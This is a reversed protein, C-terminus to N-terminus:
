PNIPLWIEVIGSGSGANFREDYREFDPADAHAHGSAPLWKNWITYITARLTSIHGRHSFVAYRQAPIRIRAFESPMDDFSAVEVGAIYDFHGAGDGNCCVGYATRGIQGPINGIYPAFRLWQRPIGQNSEFTYRGGLGAILLAAGNEFRPSELDVILTDDMKIPELLEINDLHRQARVADPM